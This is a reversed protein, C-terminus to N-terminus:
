GPALANIYPGATQGRRRMHTRTHRDRQGGTQIQTLSKSQIRFASESENEGCVRM